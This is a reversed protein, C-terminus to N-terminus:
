HRTRRDMETQAVAALLEPQRLRRQGGPDANGRAIEVEDLMAPPQDGAREEPAEGFCQRDVGARQGTRLVRAKRLLDRLNGGVRQDAIEPQRSRFGLFEDAAVPVPRLRDHAQMAGIRPCAVERLRQGVAKRVVGAQHLGAVIEKGVNGRDAGEGLDQPLMGVEIGIAAHAEGSEDGFLAAAEAIDRLAQEVMQAAGGLAGPRRCRCLLDVVKEDVVAIM